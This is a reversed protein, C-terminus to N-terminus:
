ALLGRSISKGKIVRKYLLRQSKMGIVLSYFREKLECITQRSRKQVTKMWSKKATWNLIHKKKEFYDKENKV